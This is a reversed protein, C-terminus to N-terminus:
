STQAVKRKKAATGAASSAAPTSKKSAAGKPTSARSTDDLGAEDFTRKGLSKKSGKPKDEKEKEKGKGKGDDQEKAIMLLLTKSRRELEVTTRSKFFWDFRFVPFESVDKKIRDYVGESNLGYYDLRCLLYRDEEESYIKGKTTPYNLHLEQMPYRYMTIKRHLMDATETDKDRKAQGEEIRQKTREYEEFSDAWAAFLFLFGYRTAHAV